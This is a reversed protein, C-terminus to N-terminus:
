TVSATKDLHRDDSIRVGSLGSQEVTQRIGAHKALVLQKGCQVGCCPTILQGASFCQQQGIRDTKYSFQRMMENLGEFGRQFFHGIGIQKHDDRVFAIRLYVLLQFHRM